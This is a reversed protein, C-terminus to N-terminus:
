SQDWRGATKVKTEALQQTFV